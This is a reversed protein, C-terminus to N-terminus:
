LTQYLLNYNRIVQEMFYNGNWYCSIIIYYSFLSSLIDNKIFYIYYLYSLLSSAICGPNRKWLNLHYNM